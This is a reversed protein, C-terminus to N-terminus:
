AAMNRAEDEIKRARQMADSPHAKAIHLTSKLKHALSIVDSAVEFATAASADDERFYLNDTFKLLFKEYSKLSDAVDLVDDVFSSTESAIAIDELIKAHTISLTKSSAKARIINAQRRVRYTFACNVAELAIAISVCVLKYDPKAHKVFSHDMLM